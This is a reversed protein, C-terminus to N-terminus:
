AVEGVMDELRHLCCRERPGGPYGHVALAKCGVAKCKRSVMDEQVGPDSNRLGCAMYKRLQHPVRQRVMGLLSHQACYQPKGGPYGLDGADRLRKGQLTEQGPRGAGWAVGRLALELRSRVLGQKGRGGEASRAM